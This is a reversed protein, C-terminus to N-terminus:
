QLYAHFVRMEKFGNHQSLIKIFVPNEIRGGAIFLLGNVFSGGIILALRHASSSRYAHTVAGNGRVTNGSYILKTQIQSASNSGKLLNRGSNNAMIGYRCYFNEMCAGACMISELASALEIARDGSFVTVAMLNKLHRFLHDKLIDFIISSGGSKRLAAPKFAYNEMGTM